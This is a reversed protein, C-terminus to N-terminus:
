NKRALYMAIANGVLAEAGNKLAAMDIM